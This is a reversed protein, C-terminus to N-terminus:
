RASVEGSEERLKLSYMCACTYCRAITHFNSLLRSHVNGVDVDRRQAENWQLAARGGLMDRSHEVLQQKYAEHQAGANM